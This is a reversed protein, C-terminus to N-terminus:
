VRGEIIEEVPTWRAKRRARREAETEQDYNVPTPPESFGEATEFANVNITAYAAAGEAYVAGMYVGCERCVLFDATKLAFRYRSLRAPDAITLRVRGDPDSVTHAGHRRCFSCDCARVSLHAPPKATEFTVKLNGCHCSGSFAQKMAM